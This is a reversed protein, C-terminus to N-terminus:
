GILINGLVRLVTMTIPIGWPALADRVDEDIARLAHQYDTPGSVMEFYLIRVQWLYRDARHGQDDILLQHELRLENFNRRSVFTKPMLEDVLAREFADTDVTPLPAITFTILYEPSEAHNPLM